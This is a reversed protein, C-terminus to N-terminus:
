FLNKLVFQVIFQALAVIVLGVLAYIITNKASSVNNSEGGSTVYKFGGWIIMIVSVVAVLVSFFNIIRKITGEIGRGGPGNDLSKDGGCGNADINNFDFNTGQKACDVATSEASVSPVMVAVPAALLGFAMVLSAAVIQLKKRINM